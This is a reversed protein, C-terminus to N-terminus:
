VESGLFGSTINSLISIIKEEERALVERDRQSTVYKEAMKQGFAVHFREDALITQLHWKTVPDIHNLYTTYAFGAWADVVYIYTLRKPLSDAKAYEDWLHFYEANRADVQAPDRYFKAVRDDGILEVMRQTWIRTHRAEDWILRAYGDKVELEPTSKLWDGITIVAHHEGVRFIAFLHALEDPDRQKSLFTQAQQVFGAAKEPGLLQAFRSDALQASEIAM